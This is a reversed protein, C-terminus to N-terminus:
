NCIYQSILKEVIAKNELLIQFPIEYELLDYFTVPPYSERPIYASGITM